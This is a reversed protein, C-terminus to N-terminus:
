YEVARNHTNEHIAGGFYKISKLYRMIVHFYMINFGPTFPDEAYTIHEQNEIKNANRVKDTSILPM